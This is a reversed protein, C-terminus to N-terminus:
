KLTYFCWMDECKMMNRWLWQNIGLRVESTWKFSPIGWTARSGQKWQHTHLFHLNHPRYRPSEHKAGACMKLHYNNTSFQTPSFCLMFSSTPFWNSQHSQFHNLDKWNIAQITESTRPQLFVRKEFGEPSLFWPAMIVTCYKSGNCFLQKIWM